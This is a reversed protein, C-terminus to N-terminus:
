AVARDARHASQGGTARGASAQQSRWGLPARLLFAEQETPDNICDDEDGNEM